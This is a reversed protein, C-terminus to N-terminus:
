TIYAKGSAAVPLEVVVTNLDPYSLSSWIRETVDDDLTIVVDPKTGRMHIVTWTAAPTSQTHVFPTSGGGSEDVVDFPIRFVPDDSTFDYSGAPLYVSGFGLEDTVFSAVVTDTDRVVVDVSVGKALVGSARRFNRTVLIAM